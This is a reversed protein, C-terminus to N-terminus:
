KLIAKVNDIALDKGKRKNKTQPKIKITKVKTPLYKM